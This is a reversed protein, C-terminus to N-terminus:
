PEITITGEMPSGHVTCIYRITQPEYDFVVAESTSGPAGKKKVIVNFRIKSGGEVNETATHSEGDENKWVVSDGKKIKKDAEDFASDKMTITHTTKEPSGTQSQATSASWRGPMVILGLLALMLAGSFWVTVRM